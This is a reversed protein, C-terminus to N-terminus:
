LARSRFRAAVHLEGPSRGFKRNYHENVQRLRRSAAEETPYGRGSPTSSSRYPLVEPFCANTREEIIYELYRRTRPHRVCGLTMGDPPYIRAGYHWLFGDTDIECAIASGYGGQEACGRNHRQAEKEAAGKSSQIPGIWGTTTDYACFKQM